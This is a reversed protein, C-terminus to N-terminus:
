NNNINRAYGNAVLNLEVFHLQCCCDSTTILHIYNQIDGPASIDNGLRLLGKISLCELSNCWSCVAAQVFMRHCFCWGGEVLSLVQSLKKCFVDLHLSFIRALGDSKLHQSADAGAANWCNFVPGNEDHWGVGSSFTAGPSDEFDCVYSLLFDRTFSDGEILTRSQYHGEANTVIVSLYEDDGHM